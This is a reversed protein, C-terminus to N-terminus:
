QTSGPSQSGVHVLGGKRAFVDAISRKGFLPNRREDRQELAIQGAATVRSIAPSRAAQSIAHRSWEGSDRDIEDKGILVGCM